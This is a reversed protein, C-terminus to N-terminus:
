DQLGLVQRLFMVMAYFQYDANEKRAFGHGENDALVYWVPTGNARVKAVIQEAETVPVRPDNKGQVVMLPRRIRDAHTLPSISQLFARMAPDREDGYEVRRLDRRYSETNQLFSVFNSIGVSDIAGAIREPYTTAVALSMYGGYSGGAVVVRKPDLDPQTAIWDLLAGIDKVSDERLRGNDLALFTKGYGSSGRVNPRLVAMGLEHTYYASRGGFGVKAQGEPGGHIDILVPRRGTFRAHPRTLLGSISRGDFSTWRVITQESFRRPDLTPNLRARTWAQVQGTALDLSYLQSPGQANTISFALEGGQARFSVPGVSGAPLAPLPREVGTRADMLRLENRGDVNVRLALTQGDPSPEVLEVDWPLQRTLRQQAGTALTMAVLERFEGAQDSLLYLTGGDASFHAPHLSAPPAAVGPAPLLQRRQGSALDMLWVQSENASIYRRLAVQRDDASVATAYWGGGPLDALTRGEGPKAPDLLWLRSSVETRKGGQATRDLPLSTVLAQSSRHLWANLAHRQSPDTLLTQNRSPPDMRYLQYAEDGGNARALVISRGQRPEYWANGIPETSDTLAQLRGLPADLAFLQSTNAGAARHTVLMARQAPHWDVFGHGAFETYKAVAEAVSRPVAPVGTLQLAPPPTVIATRDGAGAGGPPTGCAALLGALAWALGAHAARAAIPTTPRAPLPPM